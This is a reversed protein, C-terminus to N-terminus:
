LEEAHINVAIVVRHEELRLALVTASAVTAVAVTRQCAVTSSQAVHVIPTRKDIGAIGAASAGVATRVPVITHLTAALTCVAIDQRCIALNVTRVAVDHLTDALAHVPPTASCTILGLPTVRYWGQEHQRPRTSCDAAQAHTTAKNTLSMIAPSRSSGLQRAALSYSGVAERTGM